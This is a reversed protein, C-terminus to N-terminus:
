PSCPSGDDHCAFGREVVQRYPVLVLTEHGPGDERPRANLPIDALRTVESVDGLLLEVKDGVAEPRHLVAFDPADGTLVRDLLDGFRRDESAM